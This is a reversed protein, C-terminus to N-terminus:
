SNCREAEHELTSVQRREMAMKECPVKELALNGSGSSSPNLSKGQGDHRVCCRWSWAFGLSQFSSEVANNISKNSSFNRALLM